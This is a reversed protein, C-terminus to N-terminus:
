KLHCDEGANALRYSAQTPTRSSPYPNSDIVSLSELFSMYILKFSVGLTDRLGVKLSETSRTMAQRTASEHGSIADAMSIMESSTDVRYPAYSHHCSKPSISVNM